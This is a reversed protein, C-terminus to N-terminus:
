KEFNFQEQLARQAEKRIQETQFHTYLKFFENQYSPIHQYQHRKLIYRTENSSTVDLFELLNTTAKTGEHDHERKLIAHAWFAKEMNKQITKCTRDVLISFLNELAVVVQHEQPYLTQIRGPNIWLTNFDNVKATPFLSYNQTAVPTLRYTTGVLQHLTKSYLRYELRELPKLM